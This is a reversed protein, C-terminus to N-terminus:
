IIKLEKAKNLMFDSGNEQQIENLALSIAQLNFNKIIKIFDQKSDQTFIECLNLEKLYLANYYQHNKAAYPYPIFICPLNNASLEFLSSAGSRAIALDAKVIKEIVDKDFDFLEVEINLKEYAKKCRQYDNSGCQHIINIKKEKFYLANNIALDNIFRAGQSGGLFIINKLEKRIRRKTFFFENVPYPCFFTNTTTIQGKFATFFAKSFPKLLKNLSGIKSNQEHILLPINDMLAAFAAPASSYGGVSFVAQINQIRLIKKIDLALKLIHMFSHFKALGKKNVVGQSSLFYKQKFGEEYEFWLRDQGNESGIYICELGMKNASQMLCRAIALHGGTGGGTIAIM